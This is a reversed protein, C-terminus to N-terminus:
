TQMGPAGQAAGTSTSRGGSCAGPGVAEPGAGREEDGGCWCCCGVLREAEGVATLPLPEGEESRAAMRLITSFAACRALAGWATNSGDM